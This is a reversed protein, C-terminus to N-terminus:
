KLIDVIAEYVTKAMYYMGLDNPHVADIMYLDAMEMIPFYNIGEVFYVNKDGAAVAKEYTSRVIDERAQDDATKEPTFIPRTLMLIPLEPNAERVTKYFDYHMKGLEATASNHDYDMVFIGMEKDAIYEAMIQEGRASGSFGLNTCDANLLRAVINTYALGTRTASAGQTISSGYFLVPAMNRELPAAIEADKSLGISISEVGAYTPLEIMVEKYGEPLAVTANLANYSYIIQGEALAYTKATGTGVYVDFGNRGSNCLNGGGASASRMRANIYIESANTRFRITAGSTHNSLTSYSAEHLNSYFEQKRSADLRYLEGNNDEPDTIGGVEIQPAGTKLYVVDGRTTSVFEKAVTGVVAYDGEAVDTASSIFDVDFADRLGPMREVGSKAADPTFASNLIDYVCTAIYFMGTDTPHELDATYLDCLASDLPFIDSGRLLYVNDDGEELAKNYTQEIVAVREKSSELQETSFVPDSMIIIPIDPHAERVKKYFSYHNEKLEDLTAGKDLEMVFASINELSAIYDAYKEEGHAGEYFGLNIMDANLMRSAINAYANGAKSASLGQTIASGYFVIPAHDRKIPLAVGDNENSFGIEFSSPETGYPLTILVENYGGNLTFTVDLKLGAYINLNKGCDVRYTGAGQYVEIGFNGRDQIFPLKLYDDKFQAKIRITKATTAFRITGGKTGECGRMLEFVPADYSIFYTGSENKVYNKDVDAVRVFEAELKIRDNDNRAEFNFEDTLKIGSAKVPTNGPVSSEVGSDSEVATDTETDNDAPPVDNCGVVALLMFLALLIAILRKM